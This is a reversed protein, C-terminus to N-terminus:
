SEIDHVDDLATEGVNLNGKNTKHNPKKTRETKRTGRQRKNRETLRAGNSSQPEVEVEVDIDHVYLTDEENCRVYEEM